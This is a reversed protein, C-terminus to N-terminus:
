ARNYGLPKRPCEMETSSCTPEKNFLRTCDSSVLWVDITTIDREIKPTAVHVRKMAPPDILAPKAIEPQKAAPCPNAGHRRDQAHGHAYRPGAPLILFIRQVFNM